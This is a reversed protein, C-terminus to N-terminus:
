LSRDLAEGASKGHHIRTSASQCCTLFEKDTLDPAFDILVYPHKEDAPAREDCLPQDSLGPYGLNRFGYASTRGSVACRTLIKEGPQGVAAKQNFNRM